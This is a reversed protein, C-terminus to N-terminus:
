RRRVTQTVQADHESKRTRANRFALRARSLKAGWSEGGVPRLDKGAQAVMVRVGGAAGLASFGALWLGLHNELVTRERVALLNRAWSRLAFPRPGGFLVAEAVGLTTRWPRELNWRQALDLLKERDLGNAMVAVDVLQGVRTLPGHAWSHVAVVLAHHLPDLTLVGDVGLSAPVAHELLERTPPSGLWAPWNPASHVEVLLPVGPWQLPLWHPSDVYQAPDGVEVFGAGVLARQVLRADPVLLDLDICPRLAPDPYRAAIQPGKM